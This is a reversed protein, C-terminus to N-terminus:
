LAVFFFRCFEKALFWFSSAFREFELGIGSIKSECWSLSAYYLYKYGIILQRDFLFGLQTLCGWFVRIGSTRRTEASGVTRVSKVVMRVLVEFLEM